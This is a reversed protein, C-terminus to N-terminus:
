PVIEIRREILSRFGYSSSSGTAVVIRAVGTDRSPSPGTCTSCRAEITGPRIRGAAHQGYCTSARPACPSEGRSRLTSSGHPARSTTAPRAARGRGRSFRFRTSSGTRSRTRFGTLKFCANPSFPTSHLCWPIGHSRTRRRSVDQGKLLSRSQATDFTVWTVKDLDPGDLRPLLEWLERLHGGAAAVLLTGKYDRGEHRSRGGSACHLSLSLFEM